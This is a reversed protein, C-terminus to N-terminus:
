FRYRANFSVSDNHGRRQRTPPSAGDLPDADPRYDPDDRYSLNPRYYTTSHLYEASVDFASFPKWMLGGFYGLNQYVQGYDVEDKAGTEGGVSGVVSVGTDGFRLGWEAWGGLGRLSTVDRLEGSLAANAFLDDEDWVDVLVGHRAFLGNLNEGTWVQGQFWTPGAALRLDMSALWTRVDRDAYRLEGTRYGPEMETGTAVEFRERGLHGAFGIELAGGKLAFRGQLWPAGALVGPDVADVRTM